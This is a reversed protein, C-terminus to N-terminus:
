IVSKYFAINKQLITEPTFRALIDKRANIGLKAALEKDKLLLKIAEAIEKPQYPDVLWGTEGHIVAEKGPGIHSGIFTKGTSLAELWAVPMAEMHSPYVCINAQQLLNAVESNPVVGVIEVNDKIKDSIFGKLYEIYSKGDPFFWDRGVIKLRINEFEEVVFELSQVLQRVGKKECVTGVFLLTNEDVKVNTAPKFKDTNVSNYITEFDFNKKLYEKTQNGVYSSVAIYNDAKKFSLKEKYARWPKVKANLENSFFHHGGHMRIVKKYPTKAPFFSFTLESGEVLDIPNSTNVHEIKKLLRKSNDIFKLFKWKSFPIRYIAVGEDDEYSEKPLNYTGVVSVKYGQDVLSKSIFKIFSGVGGHVHNKTPYEHTIYVIHM